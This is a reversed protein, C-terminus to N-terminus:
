PTQKDEKVAMVIIERLAMALYDPIESFDARVVFKSPNSETIQVTYTINAPQKGSGTTASCARRKLGSDYGDSVIDNVQWEGYAKHAVSAKNTPLPLLLKKNWFLTRVTETVAKDSCAPAEAAQANGALLLLFLIGALTNKM